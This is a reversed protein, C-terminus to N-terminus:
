RATIGIMKFVYDGRRLHVREHTLVYKRQSSDLNMPLYIKPHVLAMSSHPLFPRANM